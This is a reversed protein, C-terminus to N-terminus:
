TLWIPNSWARKGDADAIVVRLWDSQKLGALPLKRQTIGEGFESVSAAGHGVALVRSVPSCSVEISGESVTINHFQPGQSSYYDGAKLAALLEEPALTESKVMVWGGFHDPGTFHADDTACASLRRGDSLLYDLIATGDGRDSEIDCSTNYIEVADAADIQCADEPTMGNWQPHAIAVFAGAGSCRRVLSAMSEDSNAGDFDPAHPPPFDSPLGVALVHWIEGNQMQGTHVEAGLITTFSNTRHETTDTIPYGYLGVFHDSLCIFDYGENAYRQCVDGPDLAGDSRNSHTHLNGRYFAGPKSFATPRIM